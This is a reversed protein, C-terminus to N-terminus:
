SRLVYRYPVVVVRDGDRVMLGFWGKRVVCGSVCGISVDEGDDPLIVRQYAAYDKVADVIKLVVAVCVATVIVGLGVTLVPWLINSRSLAIVFGVVVIIVSVTHRFLDVVSFKKQLYKSVEAEVGYRKSLRVILRSVLRGVLVASLLILVPEGITFFVDNVAQNLWSALQTLSNSMSM